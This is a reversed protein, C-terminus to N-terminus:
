VAAFGPLVRSLAAPLGETATELWEDRCRDSTGIARPMGEALGGLIQEAYHILGQRLPIGYVALMVGYVIAHWGHARGSEIAGLYRQIVRVDKLPRLRNLQRQGARFSAEATSRMGVRLGWERDLEVLENGRGNVALNWARIVLPWEEGVLTEDVYQRAWAAWDGHVGPLRDFAGGATRAPGAGVHRALARVDGLLVDDAAGAGNVPRVAEMSM